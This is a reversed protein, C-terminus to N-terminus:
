GLCSRTLFYNFADRAKCIAVPVDKLTEVSAPALNLSPLLLLSGLNNLIVSPAQPVFMTTAQNQAPFAYTGSDACAALANRITLSVVVSEDCWRDM